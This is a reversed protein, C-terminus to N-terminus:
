LMNTTQTMTYGGDTALMCGENFIEDKMTDDGPSQTNEIINWNRGAGMAKGGKIGKPAEGNKYYYALDIPNIVLGKSQNSGYNFADHVGIMLEAGVTILKDVTIGWKKYKDGGADRILMANGDLLGMIEARGQKSMLWLLESNIDVSRHMALALDKKIKSLTMQGGFSFEEQAQDWLGVPHPISVAATELGAVSTTNGSSPKVGWIWNREVARVHHILKYQKLREHINGGALQKTDKASLTSEIAHRYIGMINWYHDDTKTITGPSSSGYEHMSSINLLVNTAVASFTTAGLTVFTIVDGTVDVVIGVTENATNQFVMRPLIQLGSDTPLTIALGSASVVTHTEGEPEHSFSEVRSSDRVRAEILGGSQTVKGTKRDVNMVKSLKTLWCDQPVLYKIDEHVSRAQLQTTSPNGDVIATKSYSM